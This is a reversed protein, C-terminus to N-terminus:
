SKAEAALCGMCVLKGGPTLSGFDNGGCTPCTSSVPKKADAADPMPMNDHEQLTASPPSSVGLVGLVGSGMSIETTNTTADIPTKESVGGDVPTQGLFVGGAVPTKPTNEPTNKQQL